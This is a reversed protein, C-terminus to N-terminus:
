GGPETCRAGTSLLRIRGSTAAVPFCPRAGRYSPCSLPPRPPPSPRINPPAAPDSHQVPGVSHATPAPAPPPRVWSTGWSNKLSLFSSTFGVALVAHNLSEPMCGSLVGQKYHQLASADVAVSVPGRAIAAFLAASTNPAVRVVRSVAGRPLWSGDAAEASAKACGSSAVVCKDGKPDRDILYPYAVESCLATDNAYAFSNVMNGGNCGANCGGDCYAGSCDVLQQESLSPAVSLNHEIALASELAGTSSFAGARECM